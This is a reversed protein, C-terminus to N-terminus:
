IMVKSPARRLHTSLYKTILRPKVLPELGELAPGLKKDGLAGASGAVLRCGRAVALLWCGAHATRLATM